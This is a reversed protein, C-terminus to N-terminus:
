SDVQPLVVHLGSFLIYSAVHLTCTCVGVCMTYQSKFRETDYELNVSISKSLNRRYSNTSLSVSTLARFAEWSVWMSAISLLSSSMMFLAFLSKFVRRSLTWSASSFLFLCFITSISWYMLCCLSSMSSIVDGCGCYNWKTMACILYCVVPSHIYTAAPWKNNSAGSTLFIGYYLSWFLVM